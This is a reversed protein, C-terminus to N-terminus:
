INSIFVLFFCCFCFLICFCSLLMDLFWSSSHTDLACLIRNVNANTRSFLLLLLKIAKPGLGYFHRSRAIEWESERHRRCCRWLRWPIIHTTVPAPAAAAAASASATSHHAQAQKHITIHSLWFSLEVKWRESLNSTKMLWNLTSRLIFLM